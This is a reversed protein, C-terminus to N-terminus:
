KVVYGFYKLSLEDRFGSKIVKKLALRLDESVQKAMGKGGALWINEINLVQGFKLRLSTDQANKNWRTIIENVDGYWAAVRGMEIMKISQKVNNFSLINNFGKEKLEQEHSTGRWAGVSPLKKGEDFTNIPKALSVFASKAGIIPEIWTYNHERDPLRSLGPIIAKSFRSAQKMARPWPVLRYNIQYGSVESVKQVLEILIGPRTISDMMYGPIEAGYMTLVPKTKQAYSSGSVILLAALASFFRMWM